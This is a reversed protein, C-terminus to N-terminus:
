PPSELFILFSVMAICLFRLFKTNEKRIHITATWWTMDWVASEDRLEVMVAMESSDVNIVEVITSEFEVVWDADADAGNDRIVESNEVVWVKDVVVSLEVSVETVPEIVEEVGVLGGGADALGIV